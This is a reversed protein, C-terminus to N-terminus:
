DIGCGGSGMCCSPAGCGAMPLTPSARASSGSQAAAPASLQRTLHESDGCTPCEPQDTSARVLTEFTRNCPECHYEYIPM